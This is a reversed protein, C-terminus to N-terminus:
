PVESYSLPSHSNENTECKNPSVSCNITLSVATRTSQEIRSSRHRSTRACNYKLKANTKSSFSKRIYQVEPTLDLVLAIRFGFM